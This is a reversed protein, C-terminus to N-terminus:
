FSMRLVQRQRKRDGLNLLLSLLFKLFLNLLDLVLVELAPHDFILVSAGASFPRFTWVFVQHLVVGTLVVVRLNSFLHGHVNLVELHTNLRLFSWNNQFSLFIATLDSLLLGKRSEIQEIFRAFSVKLSVDVGLDVSLVM